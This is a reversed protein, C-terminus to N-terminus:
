GSVVSSGKVDNMPIGTRPIVDGGTLQGQLVIPNPFINVGLLTASDSTLLFEGFVQASVTDNGGQLHISASDSSEVADASQFPANWALATKRAYGNYGSEVATVDALKTRTTPAIAASVSGWVANALPALTTTDSGTIRIMSRRLMEDTWVWGM